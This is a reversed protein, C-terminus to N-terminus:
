WLWSFAFSAHEESLVPGNSARRVRLTLCADINIGAFKPRARYASLERRESPCGNLNMLCFAILREMSEDCLLYLDLWRIGSWRCSQCWQTAALHEDKGIGPLSCCSKGWIELFIRSLICQTRQNQDAVTAQLLNM